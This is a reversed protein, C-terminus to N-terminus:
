RHLYRAISICIYLKNQLRVKKPKEGNKKSKRRLVATKQLNKEPNGGTGSVRGDPLECVRVNRRIYQRVVHTRLAYTHVYTLSSCHSRFGPSFGEFHKQKLFFFPPFRLFDAYLIPRVRIAYTHQSPLM